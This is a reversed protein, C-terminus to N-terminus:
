PCQPKRLPAGSKRYQRIVKRFGFLKKLYYLSDPFLNLTSFGQNKRIFLTPVEAMKLGHYYSRVMVETDWFWHNDEVEYIVPLIKERNFFKFGAETDNIPTHWHCLLKAILFYSKSIIWRPDWWRRKYIRFGSVVDYGEMVKFIFPLMNHCDVELDVDLFGAIKGRAKKIGESVTYGRGRNIDHAFFQVHPRDQAFERVRQLTDDKSKDEIIIMEFSLNLTTLLKYISNLNHTLYPGENYCPVILSLDM